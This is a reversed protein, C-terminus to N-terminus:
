RQTMLTDIDESTMVMMVDKTCAGNILNPPRTMRVEVEATSEQANESYSGKKQHTPPPRSNKIPARFLAKKTELVNHINHTPPYTSEKPSTPQGDESGGLTARTCKRKLLQASVEVIRVENSNVVRVWSNDLSYKAFAWNISLCQPCEQM